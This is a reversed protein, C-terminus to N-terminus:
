NTKGPKKRFRVECSVGQDSTLNMTGRIQGALMRVIALGLSGTKNADFGEPLGVGNDSVKIAIEDDPLQQIQIRVCGGRGGPFAYKFANSIMENLIQGCPIATTVDVTIPEADIVVEINGTTLLFSARLNEALERTYVGLDIHALSRSRYLMEHVIAMSLLRNELTVAMDRFTENESSDAQLKVLSNIINLNNKTRHNLERLLMNKEALANRIQEEARKRETIDVLTTLFHHVSGDPNRQCVVSIIASIISGDKRIFRKELSYTDIKGAIVQNFLDVDAALDDPHTMEVWTLQTLEARSYGFMRCVCDNVEVWGKEPATVAIGVSNNTFYRRFEAHSDLLAQMMKKRETIDRFIVQVAPKGEYTFPTATAEVELSTGDLKLFVAEILPVSLGAQLQQDRSKATERSSPHIRDVVPKGILEDPTKAGLMEMGAPNIFKFTGESHIGIGDPSSEVLKRYREESDRLAEQARRQETIDKFFVSLGNTAPYITIESSFHKGELQYTDVIVKKERTRIVERYVQAANQAWKSPFVETLTRGITQTASIKLFQEAAKNWHIFRLDNDMAFFPESISNILERYQAESNRLSIETQKRETIDHIFAFVRGKDSMSRLSISAYLVSGDKRRHQTEFTDGGVEIVHHMHEAVERPSEIIELDAIEMQLLEERSYGSMACYADNVERLRKTEIDVMWFGDQTTDIVAQYMRQSEQLATRVELLQKEADLQDLERRVMLPIADLFNSDKIVYDRAGRKMMKVAVREDGAGTTVIFPPMDRIQDVLDSGSGDPLSFDLLVLQPRNQDLWAKAQAITTALVVIIGDGEVKEKVLEAIGADDEILLVVQQEEM